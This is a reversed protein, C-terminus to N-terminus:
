APLIRLPQHEAPRSAPPMEYLIGKRKESRGVSSAQEVNARQVELTKQFMLVAALRENIAREAQENFAPKKPVGVDPLLMGDHSYWQGYEKGLRAHRNAQVKVWVLDPHTGYIRYSSAVFPAAEGNRALSVCIFAQRYDQRLWISPEALEAKQLRNLIRDATM